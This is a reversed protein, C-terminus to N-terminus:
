PMPGRRPSRRPAEDPNQGPYYHDYVESIIHFITIYESLVYIRNDFMFQGDILEFRMGKELMLRLLKQIINKKTSDNVQNSMLEARFTKCAQDFLNAATNGMFNYFLDFLNRLVNGVVEINVNNDNYYDIMFTTIM